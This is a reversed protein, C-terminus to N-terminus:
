NGERTRCEPPKRLFNIVVSKLSQRVFQETEKLAEDFMSDKIPEKIHPGDFIGILLKEM